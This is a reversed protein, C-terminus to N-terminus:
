FRVVKARKKTQASSASSSAEPKLGKRNKPALKNATSKPPEDLDERWSEDPPEEDSADDKPRKHGTFNLTELLSGGPPIKPVSSKRLSDEGVESSAEPKEHRADGKKKNKKKNKKSQRKMREIQSQTKTTSGGEALSQEHDDDTEEAEQEDTGKAALKLARTYWENREDIYCVGLAQLTAAIEDARAYDRTQKAKTRAVLLANIEEEDVERNVAKAHAGGEAIRIWTVVTPTKTSSKTSKPAM